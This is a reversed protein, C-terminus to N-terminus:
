SLLENLKIQRKHSDDVILQVDEKNVWHGQLFNVIASKNAPDKGFADDSTMGYANVKLKTDSVDIVDAEYNVKFSKNNSKDQLGYNPILVKCGIYFKLIDDQEKKKKSVEDKLTLVKAKLEKNELFLYYSVGLLIIPTVSLLIFILTYNM